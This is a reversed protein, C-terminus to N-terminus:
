EKRLEVHPPDHPSEWRFGATLGNKEAIEAYREWYGKPPDLTVRGNIIPYCDAARGTGPEGDGQHNSLKSEGDRHTVIRGPRSRGQAYLWAQRERTRFGEHFKFPMGEVALEGLTLALAKRFGPDLDAPNRNIPPEDSM